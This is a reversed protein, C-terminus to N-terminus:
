DVKEITKIIKKIMKKDYKAPEIDGFYIDEIVDKEVQILLHTEVSDQDIRYTCQICSYGELKYEKKELETITRNMYGQKDENQIADLTKELGMTNRELSEMRFILGTDPDSYRIADDMPYELWNQPISLSFYADEIKKVATQSCGALMLVLVLGAWLLKKM